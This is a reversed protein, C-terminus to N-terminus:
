QPTGTFEMLAHAELVKKTHRGLLSSAKESAEQRGKRRAQQITLSLSNFMLKHKLCQYLNTTLRNKYSTLSYCHGYELM